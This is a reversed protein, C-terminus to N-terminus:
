LGETIVVVAPTAPIVGLTLATAPLVVTVDEDGSTIAYSASAPLTITVVTPSTRVVDGHAMAGDGALIQDDWGAAGGDDGTIGAILATTISNDAAVTAVWTDGTLTIILTEGGSVIESELVGGSVMSGSLAVTVISVDFTAVAPANGKTVSSSPPAVTITEVAAVNYSSGAPLTLTMVTNSTRVLNGHVLSVEADFGNSGADDGTIAALFATTLANNGGLDARWTDSTLTIIVTQSGSVIQAELVGGAIATGTLAITPSVNAQHVDTALMDNRTLHNRGPKFIIERSLIKDRRSQENRPYRITRSM